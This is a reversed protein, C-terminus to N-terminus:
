SGPTPIGVGSNWRRLETKQSRVASDQRRAGSAWGGRRELGTGTAALSEPISGSALVGGAALLALFPEMPVRFRANGVQGVPLLLSAITALSVLALIRATGGNRWLRLVGRAAFFYALIPFSMLIAASALGRLQDPDRLGQVFRVWAGSVGGARQAELIDGVPYPEGLLARLNTRGYGFLTSFTGSLYTKLFSIPHALLVRAYEATDGPQPVSSIPIRERAEEVPIHDADALTASAIYYGLNWDGISSVTLV